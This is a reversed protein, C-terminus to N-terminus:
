VLWIERCTEPDWERGHMYGHVYADGVLCFADKEGNIERLVYPVNGGQLLFVKDGVSVERATTLGVYRQSTLIMRRGFTSMYIMNRYRTSFSSGMVALLMYSFLGASVYISAMLNVLLKDFWMPLRQILDAIMIKLEFWVIEEQSSAGMQGTPDNLLLTKRFVQMMSEGTPGYTQGSDTTVGSLHAWAAWVVDNDILRWLKWSERRVVLPGIAAITDLEYGLLRLRLGDHSIVPDYRSHASAHFGFDVEPDYLSHATEPTRWDPVWTPLHLDIDSTHVAAVSLVDLTQSINILRFATDRYIQDIPKTYDIEISDADTALGKLAFVKDRPDSAQSHGHVSLLRLFPSPAHSSFLEATSSLGSIYLYADLTGKPSILDMEGELFAFAEHFSEWPMTWYDSVLIPEKAMVLEQIIWTRRLYPNRTIEMFAEYQRSHFSMSPLEFAKLEAYGLQHYSRFNGAARKLAKAKLLQPIFHELTAISEDLAPGLWILVREANRYIDGMMRVQWSKEEDDTQNICVSDAWILRKRDELRLRFLAALLNQNIWILGDKERGDEWWGLVPIPTGMDEPDEKEIATEEFQCWMMGPDAPDGWCYSLAEYTPRSSDLLSVAKLRVRIPSNLDPAPLLELLRVTRSSPHALPKYKYHVCNERLERCSERWTALARRQQWKEWYHIAALFLAASFIGVACTAINRTTLIAM